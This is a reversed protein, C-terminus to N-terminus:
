VLLIKAPICFYLHTHCVNQLDFEHSEPISQLTPAFFLSLQCHSDPEWLPELTSPRDGDALVFNDYEGKWGWLGTSHRLYLWHM